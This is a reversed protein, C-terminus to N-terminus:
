KSILTNILESPYVAANIAPLLLNVSKGTLASLANLTQGGNNSAEMRLADFNKTIFLIIKNDPLNEEGTKIMHVFYHNPNYAWITENSADTTFGTSGTLSLVAFVGDFIGGWGLTSDLMIAQTNYGEKEAKLMMPNKTREVKATLPTTGLFTGNQYVSVGSPSSDILITQDQGVFLTGCASLAFVFLFSLFRIM